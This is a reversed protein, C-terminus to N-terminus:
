AGEVREYRVPGQILTENGIRGDPCIGNEVLLSEKWYRLVKTMESSDPAGKEVWGLVLPMLDLLRHHLVYDPHGYESKHESVYRAFHSLNVVAEPSTKFRQIREQLRQQVYQCLDQNEPESLRFDRLASVSVRADQRLLVLFLRNDKNKELHQHQYGGLNAFLAHQRSPFCPFSVTRQFELLFDVIPSAGGPIRRSKERGSHKECPNRNNEEASSPKMARFLPLIKGERDRLNRFGDREYQEFRSADGEFLNLDSM